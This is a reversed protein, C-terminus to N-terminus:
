QAAAMSSVEAADVHGGMWGALASWGGAEDNSSHRYHGLPPAGAVAHALHRAAVAWAAAAEACGTPDTTAAAENVAGGDVAAPAPACAPAGRLPAVLWPVTVAPLDADGGAAYLLPAGASRRHPQAYVLARAAQAVAETLVDDDSDDDYSSDNVLGGAWWRTPHLPPSGNACRDAVPPPPPSPTATANPEAACIPARAAATTAVRAADAAASPALLGFSRLLEVVAASATASFLWPAQHALSGPCLAPPPPVPETLLRSRPVGAALLCATFQRLEDAVGHAAGTTIWLPPVARNQRWCAV